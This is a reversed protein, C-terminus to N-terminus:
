FKLSKLLLSGGKPFSKLNSYSNDIAGSALADQLIKSSIPQNRLAFKKRIEHIECIESNRLNFSSFLDLNKKKAASIFRTKNTVSRFDHLRNKCINKTQLNFKSPKQSNTRLNGDGIGAYRTSKFIPIQLPLPTECSEPKLRLIESSKMIQYKENIANLMEERTKKQVKHSYNANKKRFSRLFSPHDSSTELPIRISPPSKSNSENRSPSNIYDSHIKELLLKQSKEDKTMVIESLLLHLNLHLQKNFRPSRRSAYQEKRQFKSNYYQELQDKLYIFSPNSDLKSSSLFNIPIKVQLNEFADIENDM